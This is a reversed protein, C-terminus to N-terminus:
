QQMGVLLALRVCWLMLCSTDCDKWDGKAMLWLLWIDGVEGSTELIMLDEENTWGLGAIRGHNWPIAGLAAGAATFTRIQPQIAGGTVLVIKRDDRVVAIPGGYPACVVRCAAVLTTFSQDRKDAVCMLVQKM